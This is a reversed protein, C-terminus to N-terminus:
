YGLNRLKTETIGLKGSIREIQRKVSKVIIDTELNVIDGPKIQSLTTSRLTEPIVAISFGDSALNAITLSVGNIAISGKEVIENLLTQNATFRMTWFGGAKEIAKLTGTGDVHGQVFHGGFRGDARMSREINVKAGPLLKGILSRKLTEGSVDFSASSGSLKTVSLCAGSVSVSDGIRVGNALEGLDLQLVANDGRVTMARVECVGEIIGTFM